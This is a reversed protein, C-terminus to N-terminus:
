IQPGVAEGPVTEVETYFLNKEKILDLIQNTVEIKDTNFIVEMKGIVLDITNQKAWEDVILSLQEYVQSNLDDTMSKIKRKFEMDLKMLNEQIQRLRESDRKQSSEDIVIGSQARKIISEFEKKEPDVSELMKRKESEINKYGEVYPQFSRTLVEFDIVRIEM